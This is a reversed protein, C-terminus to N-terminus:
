SRDFVLFIISYSQILGREFLGRMIEIDTKVESSEVTRQDRDTANAYQSFERCQFKSRWSSSRDGISGRSGPLVSRTCESVRPYGRSGSGNTVKAHIPLMRSTDKASERCNQSQRDFTLTAVVPRM